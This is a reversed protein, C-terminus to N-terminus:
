STVVRHTSSFVSGASDNRWVIFLKILVTAIYFYILLATHSKGFKFDCNEHTRYTEAARKLERRANLSTFDHFIVSCLCLSHPFGCTM